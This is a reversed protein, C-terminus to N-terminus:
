MASSFALSSSLSFVLNILIKLLSQQVYYCILSIICCLAVLMPMSVSVFPNLFDITKWKSSALMLLRGLWCPLFCDSSTYTAILLILLLTAWCSSFDLLAWSQFSSTHSHINTILNSFSFIALLCTRMWLGLNSVSSWTADLDQAVSSTAGFQICIRVLLTCCCNYCCSDPCVCLFAQIMLVSSCSYLAHTLSWLLPILVGRVPTESVMYFNILVATVITHLM